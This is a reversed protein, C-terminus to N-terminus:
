HKREVKADILTRLYNQLRIRDEREIELFMIGNGLQPHRSVVVGRMPLKHQRVSLVIDLMRGVELTFIMPVYCGGLSIDATEVRLTADSGDARIEAPIAAKIRQHTRREMLGVEPTMEFVNLSGM